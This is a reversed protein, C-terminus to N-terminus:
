RVPSPLDSRHQGQYASGRSFRSRFWADVSWYPAGALLLPLWAIAYPLDNGLYYPTTQWSVTLFLSVNILLGGLAAVRSLVGLLTGVGVAIEGIALAWAVQNPAHLAQGVLFGIPSSSRIGTAMSVFSQPDGAGALFHHSTIKDVGAYVFTVGLFVRLPLLAYRRGWGGERSHDM